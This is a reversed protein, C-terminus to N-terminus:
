LQSLTARAEAVMQDYRRTNEESLDARELIVLLDRSRAELGPLEPDNQLQAMAQEIEADTMNPKFNISALKKGLLRNIATCQDIVRGLDEQSLQGMRSHAILTDTSAANYITDRVSTGNETNQEVGFSDTKSKSCSAM